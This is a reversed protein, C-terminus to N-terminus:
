KNNNNINSDNYNNNNYNNNNNNYFMGIALGEGNQYAYIQCWILHISLLSM